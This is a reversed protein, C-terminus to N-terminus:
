RVRKVIRLYLSMVMMKKRLIKTLLLDPIAVWAWRVGPGTSKESGYAGIQIREGFRCVM